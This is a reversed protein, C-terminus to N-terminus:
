VPAGEMPNPASRSDLANPLSCLMLYEMELPGPLSPSLWGSRLDLTGRDSDYARVVCDGGVVEVLSVRGDKCFLHFGQENRALLQAHPGHLELRATGERQGSTVQLELRAFVERYAKLLFKGWTEEAPTFSLELVAQEDRGDGELLALEALLEGLKAHLRCEQTRVPLSVSLEKLAQGISPSRLLGDWSAGIQLLPHATDLRRTPREKGTMYGRLRGIIARARRLRDQLAYYWVQESTLEEGVLDSSSPLLRERHELEEELSSLLPLTLESVLVGRRSAAKLERVSVKLEPEADIGIVTPAHPQMQTLQASVPASISTEISRKLARAGLQPHFGLDVIREMARPTVQLICQRRVLGERALLKGLLRQALTQTEARTLRAFPVVRDLRNFLEPPFFAEVARQYALGEEGQRQRLGVPKSAERVGLNSTMIVIAQTFDVTRGRADTLRGDGLLQLLLNFVEHHAKEIEDLLLVCFPRRRVAATLLGDPQHFTGILRAASYPSVFENMDFRLLRSEDHFLFRALAKACETKGVGTPGVFLLSAVPRSPDCLRAKSMMVADAAAELAASQGMLQEGLESLVEERKLVMRDQLLRVDIGSLSHFYEIVEQRRIKGQRHRAALKRLFAASKGPFVADRVYRRQLDIATTLAELEFTCAHLREGLRIEELAIELTDRESTEHLHTISFLDAFGRDRERLVALSESTSEALVRVLGQQMHPKLVDAVCLNSDRSVGASFLGLLDDFILVLDKEAAYKLIAMLRAEWQGVYSMGSILRQPSLLWYRRELTGKSQRHRRVMEHLLATKGVKRPGVVLQPAREKRQLARQLRSAEKDRCLCRDLDHPYRDDLSRGVQELEVWGPHVSAGGLIMRGPDHSAQPPTEPMRFPLEIESVWSRNYHENGLALGAGRRFYHDLAELSRQRLDAGRPLHFWLGELEPCFAVRPEQDPLVVVLFQGKVTRKKHQLEFAFTKDYLNPSFVFDALPELRPLKALMSLERRISGALKSLVRELLKGSAEPQTHFLPRALYTPDHGPTQSVLVPITLKM